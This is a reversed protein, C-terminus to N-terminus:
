IRIGRGQKQQHSQTLAQRQSLSAQTHQIIFADAVRDMDHGPYKETLFNKVQAALDEKWIQLAQHQEHTFAKLVEVANRGRALVENTGNAPFHEVVAFELTGTVNRHCVFINESVDVSKHWQSGDDALIPNGLPSQQASMHAAVATTAIHTELHKVAGHSTPFQKVHEAFHRTADTFAKDEIETPRRFKFPHENM